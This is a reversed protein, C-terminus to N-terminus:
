ILDDMRRHKHFRVSEEGAKPLNQKTRTASRGIGYNDQPICLHTYLCEYKCILDM